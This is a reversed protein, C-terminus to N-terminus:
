KLYIVVARSCQPDDFYMYDVGGYDAKELQNPNIGYENVLVKTVAEVRKESLFKNRKSTATQKDAYGSIVFTRDPCTKIFDAAAMISVKQANSIFWKDIEFNVYAWYKPQYPMMTKRIRRNEEKLNNIEVDKEKIIENKEKVAENVIETTISSTAIAVSTPVWEHKTEEGTKRDERKVFGFKYVVGATLGIMGDMPLNDHDESSLYSIGNFGDSYLAGRLSLGIKWHSAVNFDFKMGANFSAGVATYDVKCIPFVVGGGFYGTWDFIRDKKYGWFLTTFDFSFKIYANSYWGTAYKFSPGNKYAEDSEKSFTAKVDGSGYIGKYQAFNLGLGMGFFPSAWKQIDFDLAPAWWDQIKFYGGPIYEGLYAQTGVRLELEWNSKFSNVLFGTEGTEEYTSTKTQKKTTDGEKTTEVKTQKQVNDVNETTTETNTQATAAFSCGFVTLVIAIIYKKM